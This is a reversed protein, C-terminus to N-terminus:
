LQDGARLQTAASASHTFQVYLYQKQPQHYNLKHCTLKNQSVGGTVTVYLCM